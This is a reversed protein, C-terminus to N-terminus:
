DVPHTKLPSCAYHEKFKSVNIGVETKPKVFFFVEMQSAPGSLSGKKKIKFVVCLLQFRNAEDTDSGDWPM